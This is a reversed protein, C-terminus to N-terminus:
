ANPGVQNPMAEHPEPVSEDTQSLRCRSCERCFHQCARCLAVVLCTPCGLNTPTACHYCWPLIGHVRGTSRDMNAVYITWIHWYRWSYLVPDFFHLRNRPEILHARGIPRQATAEITRLQYSVIQAVYSGEQLSLIYAVLVEIGTEGIMFFLYPRVHAILHLPLRVWYPFVEDTPPDALPDRAM